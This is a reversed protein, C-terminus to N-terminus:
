ERSARPEPNLPSQRQDKLWRREGGQILSVTLPDSLHRQQESDATPEAAKVHNEKLLYVPVKNENIFLEVCHHYTVLCKLLFYM